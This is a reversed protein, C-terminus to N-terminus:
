PNQKRLARAECASMHYSDGPNCQLEYADCHPCVPPVTVTSLGALIEGGFESKAVVEAERRDTFRMAQGLDNAVVRAYGAQAGRHRSPEALYSRDGTAAFTEVIVFHM